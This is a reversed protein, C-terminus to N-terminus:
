PQSAWTRSQAPACGQLAGPVISVYTHSEKTAKLALPLQPYCDKAGAM